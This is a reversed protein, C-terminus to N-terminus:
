GAGGAVILGVSGIGDIEAVVEDGAALPVQVVSGTIIQDGAQLREGAAELVRGLAVVTEGTSFMTNSFKRKSDSSVLSPSAGAAERAPRL